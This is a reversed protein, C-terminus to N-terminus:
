YSSAEIREIEAFNKIYGLRHEMSLVKSGMVVSSCSLPEIKDLIALATRYGIYFGNIAASHARQSWACEIFILNQRLINDMGDALKASVENRHEINAYNTLHRKMKPMFEIDECVYKSFGGDDLREPTFYQKFGCYLGAIFGYSASYERIKVCTEEYETLLAAKESSLTDAFVAIAAAYNQEEKAFERKAADKQYISCIAEQFTRGLGEAVIERILDKTIM